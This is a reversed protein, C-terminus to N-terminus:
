LNNLREKIEDVTINDYKWLELIEQIEEKRIEYERKKDNFFSAFSKEKMIENELFEEMSEYRPSHHDNIEKLNEYIDKIIKTTNNPISPFSHSNDLRNQIEEIQRDISDDIEDRITPADLSPQIEEIQQDSITEADLWAQIEKIRRDIDEDIENARRKEEETMRRYQRRPQPQPQEETTLAVLFDNLKRILYLAIGRIEDITTM